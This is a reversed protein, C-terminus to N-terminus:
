IDPFIKKGITNNIIPIRQRSIANVAASSVRELSMERRYLKLSDTSITHKIYPSLRHTSMGANDPPM